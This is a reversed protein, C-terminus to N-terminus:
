GIHFGQWYGENTCVRFGLFEECCISRSKQNGEHGGDECEDHSVQRILVLQGWLLGVGLDRSQAFLSIALDRSDFRIHVGLEDDYVAFDCFNFALDRVLDVADLALDRLFDIFDLALDSCFKIFELEVFDLALDGVLNSLDLSNHSLLVLKGRRLDDVKFGGCALSHLLGLHHRLLDCDYGGDRSALELGFDLLLPQHADRCVGSLNCLLLDDCCELNDLRLANFGQDGVNSIRDDLHKVLCSLDFCRRDNSHARVLLSPLRRVPVKNSHTSLKTITHQPKPAQPYPVHTYM